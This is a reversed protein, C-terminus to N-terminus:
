VPGLNAANEAIATVKSRLNYRPWVCHHCQLSSVGRKSATCTDESELVLETTNIKYHSKDRPKCARFILWNANYCAQGYVFRKDADCKSLFKLTTRHILKGLKGLDRLFVLIRDMFYSNKQLVYYVAARLIDRRRPACVDYKNHANAYRWLRSFVTSITTSLVDAPDCVLSYITEGTFRGLRDILPLEFRNRVVPVTTLWRKSRRLSLGRIQRQDRPLTM